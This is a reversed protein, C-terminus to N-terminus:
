SESGSRHPRHSALWVTHGGCDPDEAVYQEVVFGHQGLLARYEDEDLSAHFLPEGELVGTVEGEYTGSTFMLAAGDNAHRALVEFMARQDDGPLHFFSDWAIIGDFAEDLGLGRMDAVRWRQDPFRVTCKDIMSPSTDIGCVRYGRDIFYAAIPEGAGCGLDLVAGQDALLSHFRELWPREFLARPRHRDWGEAHVEYLAAVEDATAGGSLQFGPIEFMIRDGCELKRWLKWPDIGSHAAAFLAMVTGHTIAVVNANEALDVLAAAIAESFRALAADASEEGLMARSPQEFLPRNLREHEQKDVIPLVPRDLERLGPIVRVTADITSAVIEATRLAKPENSSVLAFPRYPALEAALEQAQREGVPGLRWNRPPEGAELIPMAHKVLILRRPM